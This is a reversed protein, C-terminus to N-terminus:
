KKDKNYCWDKPVIKSMTLIESRSRVHDGKLPNTLIMKNTQMTESIQKHLKALRESQLNVNRMLGEGDKSNEFIADPETFFDGIQETKIPSVKQFDPLFASNKTQTSVHAQESKFLLIDCLFQLVNLFPTELNHDTVNQLFFKYSPVREEFIEKLKQSSKVTKILFKSYKLLKKSDCDPLTWKKKLENQNFLVTLIM